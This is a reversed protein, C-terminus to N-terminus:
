SAASVQAIVHVKEANRRLIRRGDGADVLTTKAPLLIPKYFDTELRVAAPLRGEEFAVMRALSYM